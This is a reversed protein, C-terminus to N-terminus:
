DGAKKPKDPHQPEELNVSFPTDFDRGETPFDKRLPHETFDEVMLIRRLDPHNDFHVGFMDFAERELWNAGQWIDSVTPVHEGDAVQVKVSVRQQYKFSNLFYVVEFRPERTFYDVAFLDTLMVFQTEKNNKLYILVDRLIDKPVIVTEHRASKEVVVKQGFRSTLQSIANGTTM